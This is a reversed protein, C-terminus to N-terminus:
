KEEDIRLEIINHPIRKDEPPPTMYDGYLHKLVTDYDQPAFFKKGEFSIEASKFLDKKIMFDKYSNLQTCAYLVIGTDKKNHKRMRKDQMKIIKKKTFINLAWVFPRYRRSISSIKMNLARVRLNCNIINLIFNELKIKRKSRPMNDLPFIDIWVGSKEDPVNDMFIERYVTGKKRVKAYPLWYNEDTDLNQLWFKEGLETKLCEMLKDYDERLLVIDIDDDWPIFGGHRVAGLLTGYYLFYKINEKRCIRDVETLIELEVLQAKRLDTM